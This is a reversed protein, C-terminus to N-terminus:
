LSLFNKLLPFFVLGRSVNDLSFLLTFFVTYVIITNTPPFFFLVASDIHLQKSVWFADRILFVGLLM